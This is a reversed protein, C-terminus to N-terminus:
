LIDLLQHKMHITFEKLRAYFINEKRDAMDNLVVVNALEDWIKTIVFVVTDRLKIDIVKIWSMALWLQHCFNWMKVFLRPEQLHFVVKYHWQNDIIVCQLHCNLLDIHRPVVFCSKHVQLWNFIFFYCTLHLLFWVHLASKSNFNAMLIWGHSFIVWAFFLVEM